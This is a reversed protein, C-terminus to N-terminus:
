AVLVDDYPYERFEFTTIFGFKEDPLTYTLYNEFLLEALTKQLLDGIMPASRLLKGFDLVCDKERANQMIHMYLILASESLHSIAYCAAEYSIHEGIRHVAVTLNDSSPDLLYNELNMVSKLNTM